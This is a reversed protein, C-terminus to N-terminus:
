KPVYRFSLALIESILYILYDLRFGKWRVDRIVQGDDPVDPGVQSLGELSRDM